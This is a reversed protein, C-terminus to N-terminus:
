MRLLGSLSQRLDAIIDDPHELGISLRLLTEPTRTGPGETSARHEILSEVSGLSTACIILKVGAAVAQAQECSALEFALMGGFARMQRAAVGHGPHSELGPFHVRTVAPHEALFHAVQEAHQCQARVRYPLTQIGRMLLWCDFPSPVGGSVSQIERIRELMPGPERAIVAGGLVDSHGGLYKTTSHLTFDAGLELPRQLIPTGWTNDVVCFGEVSHALEVMAAIDSIRLLPNSPTEVWILRTNPRLAARVHEPDTMNVFSIQLGWPQMVDRLLHAVGTYADEPAIVHDGPKLAQLVAQSGAQGSGFALADSGGELEALCQELMSRTPNRDRAYSFGYPLSGDGGREFTTSLIIPPVVAGTAPDISRGAHIAITEINAM